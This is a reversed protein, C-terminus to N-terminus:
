AAGGKTLIVVEDGKEAFEADLEQDSCLWRMYKNVERRREDTPSLLEPVSEKNIWIPIYSVREIKGDAIVAKAIISKRANPPFPYTSYEPDPRSKYLKFFM